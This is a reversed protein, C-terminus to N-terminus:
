EYEMIIVFVRVGISSCLYKLSKSFFSIGRARVSSTLPQFSLFVNRSFVDFIRGSDQVHDIVTVNQVYHELIFDLELIRITDSM